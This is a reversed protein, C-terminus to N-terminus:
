NSVGVIADCHLGAQTGGQALEGCTANDGTGLAGRRAQGADDFAGQYAQCGKLGEAGQARASGQGPMVLPAAGPYDPPIPDSRGMPRDPRGGIGEPERVGAKYPMAKALLATQVPRKLMLVRGWVVSSM